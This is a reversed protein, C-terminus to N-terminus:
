CPNRRNNRAHERRGDNMAEIYLRAARVCSCLAQRAAIQLLEDNPALDAGFRFHEDHRLRGPAHIHARRRLNTAFNEFQTVFTTRHEHDAFLKIFQELDTIAHM